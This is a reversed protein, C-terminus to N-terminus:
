QAAEPCNGFLELVIGLVFPTEGGACGRTQASGAGCLLLQPASGQSPDSGQDRGPSIWSSSSVGDRLSWHWHRGQLTGLELGVTDGTDARCHGWGQLTGERERGHALVLVLNLGACVWKYVEWRGKSLVCREGGRGRDTDWPLRRM